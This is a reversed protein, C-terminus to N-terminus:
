ETDPCGGASCSGQTQGACGGSPCCVAESKAESCGSSAADGCTSKKCASAAKDAEHGQCSGAVKCCAPTGERPCDMCKGDTAAATTQSPKDVYGALLVTGAALAVIVVVALFPNRTLATKM